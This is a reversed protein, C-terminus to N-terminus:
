ENLTLGAGSSGIQSVLSSLSSSEDSSGSADMIFVEAERATTAGDFLLM